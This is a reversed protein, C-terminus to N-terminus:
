HNLIISQTSGGQFGQSTSYDIVSTNNNLHSPQKLFPSHMHQSDGLQQSVARRVNSVSKGRMLLMKNVKRKNEVFLKPANKLYYALLENVNRQQM